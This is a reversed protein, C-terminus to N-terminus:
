AAGRVAVLGAQFDAGILASGQGRKAAAIRAENCVNHLQAPSLNMCSHAVAGLDLDAALPAKSLAIRLISHVAASDPLNVRPTRDFRGSSTLGEDLLDPRSSTAIVVIGPPLSDMSVFLQVLTQKYEDANSEADHGRTTGFADVDELLVLCPAQAAASQFLDEMRAAGVGVFVHIFHAGSTVFVPLKSQAAVACVVSSKGTGPPGVLLLGRPVRIGQAHWRAPEEVMRLVERINDAVEELGPLNALSPANKKDWLEFRAKKMDEIKQGKNFQRLFLVFLFFMFASPAWSVVLNWGGIGSECYEVAVGQDMLTQLVPHSLPGETEKQRGRLHYNFTALGSSSRVQVHVKRVEGNDVDQIFEAFRVANDDPNVTKVVSYISYTVVMLLAWVVVTRTGQSMPKRRSPKPHQTPSSTPAAPTTPPM